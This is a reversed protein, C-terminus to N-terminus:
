EEPFGARRLGVNVTKERLAWYPPNIMWPQYERLRALSNIEPKLAISQALAAKAEDLDGKLGLAGALWLYVYFLRPNSARAQILLEVSRDADGLLLRCM